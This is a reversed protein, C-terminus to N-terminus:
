IFNALKMEASDINKDGFWVLWASKGQALLVPDAGPKWALGIKAHEWIISIL